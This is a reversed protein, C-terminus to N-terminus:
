SFTVGGEVEIVTRQFAKLLFYITMVRLRCNTKTELGHLSHCKRIRLLNCAATERILATEAMQENEFSSSQSGSHVRYSLLIEPVLIMEFKSIVRTWLEYDETAQLTSNYGGAIIIKQRNYLVTPHKVPCDKLFDWISLKTLAKARLSHSNSTLTNRVTIGGCIVAAHPYEKLYNTQIAFRGKLWIDDSDM